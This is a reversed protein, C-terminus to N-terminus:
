RDDLVSILEGAKFTLENDEVAEFDYLAQVQFMVCLVIPRIWLQVINFFVTQPELIFFSSINEGM